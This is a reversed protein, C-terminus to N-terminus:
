PISSLSPPAGEDLAHLLQSHGRSIHPSYYRCHGMQALGGPRGLKGIRM